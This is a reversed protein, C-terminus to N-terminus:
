HTLRLILENNILKKFKYIYDGSKTKNFQQFM